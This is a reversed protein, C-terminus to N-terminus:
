KEFQFKLGNLKDLRESEPFNDLHVVLHTLDVNKYKKSLGEAKCARRYTQVKSRLAIAQTESKSNRCRVVMLWSLPYAIMLFNLFVARPWELRAM